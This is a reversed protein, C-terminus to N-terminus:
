SVQLWGSLTSGTLLHLQARWERKAATNCLGQSISNQADANFSAGHTKQEIQCCLRHLARAYAHVPLGDVRRGDSLRLDMALLVHQPICRISALTLPEVADCVLNLSEM